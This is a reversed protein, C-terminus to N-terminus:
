AGARRINPYQRGKMDVGGWYAGFYWKPAKDEVGCAMTKYAAYNDYSGHPEIRIGDSQRHVQLRGDSESWTLGNSEGYLMKGTGKQPMWVQAYEAPLIVDNGDQGQAAAGVHFHQLSQLDRIGASEFDIAAVVLNRRVDGDFLPNVGPIVAFQVHESPGQFTVGPVNSQMENAIIAPSPAKGNVCTAVVQEYAQWVASLAERAEATIIDTPTRPTGRDKDLALLFRGLDHDIAEFLHSPDNSQPGGVSLPPM